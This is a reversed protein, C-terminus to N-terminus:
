PAMYDPLLSSNKAPCMLTSSSLPPSRTLCSPPTVQASFQFGLQPPETKALLVHPAMYNSLLSSNQIPFMPTSSSLPPSQTPCLPPTIQASFQFGLRPPKTKMFSVHPPWYHSLPSKNPIPYALTQPSPPPSQSACLPPSNLSFVFVSSGHSPKQLCYAPPDLIRYISGIQPPTCRTQPPPHMHNSLACPPPQNPGVVCVSVHSLKRLRIM